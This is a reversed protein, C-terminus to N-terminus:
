ADGRGADIGAASGGGAPLLVVALLGGSTIQCRRVLHAANTRAAASKGHRGFAARALRDGAPELSLASLVQGRPAAGLM